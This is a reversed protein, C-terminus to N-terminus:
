AECTTDELSVIMDELSVITDDLSVILEKEFSVQSYLYDWRWRELHQSTWYDGREERYHRYALVRKLALM